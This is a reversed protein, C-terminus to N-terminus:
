PQVERGRGAGGRQASDAAGDEPRTSAGRAHDSTTPALTGASAGVLIADLARRARRAIDTASEGSERAIEDLTRGAIVLAHFARREPLPLRNFALCARGMARPELGLPRALAAFATRHERGPDAHPPTAASRASPSPGKPDLGRAHGGGLGRREAENDERVLAAIAEEALTGIWVDVDPRGRYRLAHRAVLAFTRLVVRDADLLWAGNRLSRAVHDRVGLPDEHVIRALVERPSGCALWQRWAAGSVDEPIAAPPTSVALNMGSAAPADSSRREGPACSSITAGSERESSKPERQATV